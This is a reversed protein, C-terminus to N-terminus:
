ASAAADVYPAPARELISIFALLDGDNLLRLDVGQALRQREANVEALVACRALPCHQLAELETLTHRRLAHTWHAAEESALVHDLPQRAAREAAADQIEAVLPGMRRSLAMWWGATDVFHITGSAPRRRALTATDRVMMPEFWRTWLRHAHARRQGKLADLLATSVNSARANTDAGWADPRGAVADFLRAVTKRDLRHLLHRVREVRSEVTERRTEYREGM